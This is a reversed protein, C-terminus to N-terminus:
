AVLKNSRNLTMLRTEIKRLMKYHFQNDEDLQNVPPCFLLTLLVTKADTIKFLYNPSNIIKDVVTIIRKSIKLDQEFHLLEEKSIIFRSNNILEQKTIELKLKVDALILQLCNGEEETFQLQENNQEM